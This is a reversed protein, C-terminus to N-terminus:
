PAPVLEIKDGKKRYENGDRDYLPTGDPKDKYASPVPLSQPARGADPAAPNGGARRRELAAKTEPMMYRDDFDKRGTGGEYQKRLGMLQGGALRQATDIVGALQPWSKAASLQNQANERDAMGGAYGITAKVIEDGVIGKAVEFNTVDANGFEQVIPNKIQNLVQVDNNALAQGLQRVLDLHQVVVNLSRATRSEPGKAFDAAAAAKTTFQTADYDPNQENVKSMVYQGYKSRLVFGTLPAIRYEAIMKAETDGRKMDDPGLAADGTPSGPIKGAGTPTYPKGDLTTAEETQANYRYQVPNGQADKTNPDTLLEWKGASAAGGAGFATQVDRAAQEAKAIRAQDGSARAAKLENLANLKAHMEELKPQHEAMTDHARQEADIQRQVADRDHQQATLAMSQHQFASALAQVKGWAGDEDQKMGNLAEKYADIQFQHMKLANDTSTKWDIYAQQNRASDQQQFGKLVNGAANLSTALSRGVALGGIAALWMAASGWASASSTQQPAPATALEPPKLAGSEDLAKRRKGIEESDAAYQREAKGLEAGTDALQKESGYISKTLTDLYAGSDPM